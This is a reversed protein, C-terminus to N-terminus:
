DESSQAGIQRRKFGPSTIHLMNAGKYYMDGSGENNVNYHGIIPRDNAIHSRLGRVYRTSAKKGFQYEVYLSESYNSLKEHVWMDAIDKYTINNAFWEHGSEHIIIFRIEYGSTGSM